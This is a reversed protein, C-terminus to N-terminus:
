QKVFKLYAKRGERRNLIAVYIGPTLRQVPLEIKRMNKVPLEMIQKGSIDNIVITEWKDSLSLGDIILTKPVPNPYYRIGLSGGNVPDIGTTVNSVKITLKNSQVTVEGVCNIFSQYHYRLKVEAVGPWYDIEYRGNSGDVSNWGRAAVSDEWYIFADIGPNVIKATYTAGEGPKVITKGDISALPLPAPGTGQTLTIINSFAPQTCRQTSIIKVKVQDGGKLTSTTFITNNSGASIDNVLWQYAPTENSHVFGPTATFTVPIGPCAM